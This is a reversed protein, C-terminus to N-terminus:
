GWEQVKGAGVDLVEAAFRPSEKPASSASGSGALLVSPRTPNVAAHEAASPTTQM